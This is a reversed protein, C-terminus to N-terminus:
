EAETSSEDSDEVEGTTEGIKEVLNQWETRDAARGRLEELDTTNILRLAKSYNHDRLHVNKRNLMVLDEDLKIPLTIRPKGRFGKSNTQKFYYTMAQNAPINKDRRLIHGLLRWRSKKSTFSIPEEETKKYLKKNSIITPYRIGLVRKLQKRHFVDIKSEEAKTLGWTSCNYILIPKVLTKYITMKTKNKIKYKGESMWIKNYRNMAASALQSRRKTDELDGILTGVKKSDRWTEKKRDVDRKLTVYETKDKNIILNYKEMIPTIKDLDIYEKNSIFDLDDAYAIENPEINKDLELRIERLAKELYITFLVPSISDGQPTGINTEFKTEISARNIRPKINTNSLLYRIMRIEDEELFEEVIKLLKSRSITDFASSFDIGTIFIEIHEKQVKAALWKHTWAVDATSRNPRFGSQNHSIYKESKERIRNLTIISLVKRITNLLTVPRLNKLPGVEKGPKQLSLLIGNNIELDLHSELCENLCDTIIKTLNGQGYKLLESTINDDGPARNNNLKSIADGVEQNTIAINLKRIPGEIPQINEEKEDHFKDKFFDTTIQLIKNPDTILNNEKDLVKKNQLKKYTINKVAKFMKTSESSNKLEELKINVTNENEKMIEQRLKILTVNREKRLEEAKDSHKKDQIKLRIQKQKQSLEKIIPNEIQIYQKSSNEGLVKNATDLIVEKTRNWKDRANIGTKERIPGLKNNLTNRYLNSIKRNLKNVKKLHNINYKDPIVKKRIYLVLLLSFKLLPLLLNEVTTVRLIVRGM